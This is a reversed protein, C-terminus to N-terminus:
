YELRLIRKLVKGTPTKPLGSRIEIIRPIKYNALKPKCYEIIEAPEITENEVPVIIAVPVEGRHADKKGIVAIEKVKHHLMVVEEIERPYINM